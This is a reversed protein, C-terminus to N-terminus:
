ERGKKALIGELDERKWYYVRGKRYFPDLQGERRWRQITSLHKGFLRALEEETIFPREGDAPPSSEVILSSIEELGEAATTIQKKIRALERKLANM